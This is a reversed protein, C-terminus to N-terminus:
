NVMPHSLPVINLTNSENYGVTFSSVSVMIARNTNEVDAFIVILIIFITFCCPVVSQPNYATAIKVQKANPSSGM